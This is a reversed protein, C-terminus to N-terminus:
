VNEDAHLYGCCVPPLQLEEAREDDHGLLDCRGRERRCLEALEGLGHLEGADDVLFRGGFLAAVCGTLVRGLWRVRVLDGPEVVHAECHPTILRYEVSSPSDYLLLPILDANFIRIETVPECEVM